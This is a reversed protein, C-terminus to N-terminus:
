ISSLPSKAELPPSDGHQWSPYTLHDKGHKQSLNDPEQDVRMEALVPNGADRVQSVPGRLLEGRM